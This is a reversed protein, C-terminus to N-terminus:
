SLYGSQTVNYSCQATHELVNIKCHTQSSSLYLYIRLLIAHIPFLVGMKTINLMAMCDKRCMKVGLSSLSIVLARKEDSLCVKSSEKISVTSLVSTIM